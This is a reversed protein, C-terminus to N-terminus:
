LRDWALWGIAILVSVAWLAALIEALLVNKKHIREAADRGNEIPATNMVGRWMKPDLTSPNAFIVIAFIM